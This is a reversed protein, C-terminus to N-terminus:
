LIALRANSTAEPHKRKYDLKRELADIVTPMFDIGNVKGAGYLGGPTFANIEMVKTGAIDLGVLFMGDRRLGPEFVAAIALLDDTIPARAIRAGVTVNTRVDGGQPIRRLAAIHDGERLVQGNMLFLRTDGQEVEPLYEQALVYGDQLVAEIMQNLNASDEKRVLFVNRGASGTLPKVVIPWGIDRAFALIDSRSRSILSRPRVNQPFQELYAKNIARNLGDPDNVVISGQGIALRGFNIGALRAWPRKLQDQAPDNRLFLVDLDAIDIRRSETGTTQLDRLLHEVGDYRTDSAPCMAWAHLKEDAGYTFDDVQIYYVDSGRRHAEFALHTTTYDALEGAMSNVVFGIRM